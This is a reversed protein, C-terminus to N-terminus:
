ALRDLSESAKAVAGEVQSKLGALEADDRHGLAGSVYQAYVGELICAHKWYAFAVYYDLRSIDRGSTKAYRQVMADRTLFGRVGTSTASWATPEEGPGSWFLMLLGLDALPDGPACIEWDLVAVVDGRRDVLCNDLRLDSHVLTAPVQPPIMSLLADHVHDVAPLERTKQLNWARYWRRLQRAMYNDHPGLDQLGSAELDVAHMASMTNIFSESVRRRGPESLLKKASVRDRIVRGEVYDLVYFPAGNVLPDACYGRATAVPVPSDRLASIIRYERSLDHAQAVADALPPRRLVFRHGTASTVTFALNSHGGQMPAFAFPGTAGAVHMQLWESVPEVDIGQVVSVRLM